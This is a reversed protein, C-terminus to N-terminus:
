VQRARPDGTNLSDKYHLFISVIEHVSKPNTKSHSSKQKAQHLRINGMQWYAFVKKYTKTEDSENAIDLAKNDMAHMHM